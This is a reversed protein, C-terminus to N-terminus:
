EASGEEDDDGDGSRNGDWEWDRDGDAAARTRAAILEAAAPAADPDPEAVGVPEGSWFDDASPGAVGTDTPQTSGQYGADVIRDLDSRKIRVSRGVRVAPLSGADIWNRITQQNLKLWEAVEAVTLLSEPQDSSM